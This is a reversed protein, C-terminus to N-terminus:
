LNSNKKKKFKAQPTNQNQALHNVSVRCSSSSAKCEDRIKWPKLDGLKLLKM